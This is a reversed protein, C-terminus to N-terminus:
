EVVSENRFRQKEKDSYESKAGTTGRLMAAGASSFVTWRVTKKVSRCNLLLYDTNDICPM